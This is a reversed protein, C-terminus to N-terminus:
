KLSVLYAAIWEQKLIELRGIAESYNPVEGWHPIWNGDICSEILIIAKVEGAEARDLVTKLIRVVSEKTDKDTSPKPLVTLTM